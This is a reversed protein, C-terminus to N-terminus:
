EVELILKAFCKGFPILKYNCKGTFSHNLHIYTWRENMQPTEGNGIRGNMVRSRKEDSTAFIPPRKTWQVDETFQNKLMPVNLPAGELLNLFQQWPLFEKDGVGM